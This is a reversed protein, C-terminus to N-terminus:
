SVTIQKKEPKAEKLKAIVLYLIGNDYKAEIKDANVKNEPLRFSREFSHFSFQRYTYENGADKNKDEHKYSITLINKDLNINFDKKNLGPAAVEIHFDNDTEKINVAPLTKNYWQENNNNFFEDFFKPFVDNYRILKM